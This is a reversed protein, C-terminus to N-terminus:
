KLRTDSDLLVPTVQCNGLDSKSLLHDLKGKCIFVTRNINCIAMTLGASPSYYYKFPRIEQPFNNIGEDTYVLVLDTFNEKTRIGSDVNHLDTYLAEIKLKLAEDSPSSSSPPAGPTKQPILQDKYKYGIFILGALIILALLIWFFKKM